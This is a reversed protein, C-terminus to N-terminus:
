LTRKRDSNSGNKGEGNIAKEKAVLILGRRLCMFKQRRVILMLLLSFQIM